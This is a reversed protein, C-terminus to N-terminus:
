LLRAFVKGIQDRKIEDGVGAYRESMEEDSHGIQARLVVRDVGAAILLTNYTRRLVQPGVVWGLEIAESALALPKHLSEVARVAGQDTPFILGLELGPHQEAIQARRHARLVGLAIPPLYADRPDGTKTKVLAGRSASHRITVIERTEDLDEWRLGYLEGGRMGTLALVLVEAYRDPTRAKVALLLEGMQVLSLTRRERRAARDGQPPRVRHCPDLTLQHDACADRVLQKLVRWWSGLTHTSYEEGDKKRQKEAWTVWAEMDGRTIDRVDLKGLQPLVHLDLVDAYHAAVRARLRPAKSALWSAAYDDLSHPKRAATPAKLLVVLDARAQVAERLSAGQELTIERQLTKGTQPDRLAARVRYRGDTLLSVGAPLKKKTEAM